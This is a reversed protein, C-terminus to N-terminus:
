NGEMKRRLEEFWNRVWVREVRGTADVDRRM